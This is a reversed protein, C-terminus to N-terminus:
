EAIRQVLRTMPVGEFPEGTAIDEIDAVEMQFNHGRRKLSIRVIRKVGSDDTFDFQQEEAM